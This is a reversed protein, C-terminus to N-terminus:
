FLLSALYLLLSVALSLLLMSTLPAYVRTHVGRYRIDGPLRGFWSFGGSIILMAILVLGAGAAAVFTWTWM